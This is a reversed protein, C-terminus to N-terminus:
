ADEKNPINDLTVAEILADVAVLEGTRANIAIPNVDVARITPNEQALRALAALLRPLSTLDRLAPGRFGSVLKHLTSNASVLEVAEDVQLPPLALSVATPLLEALLGGAGAVAVQGFTADSSVGLIFEAGLDLMEEVVLETDRWNEDSALAALEAFSDILVDADTIGLRV